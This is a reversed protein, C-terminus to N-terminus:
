GDTRGLEFLNLPYSSGEFNEALDETSAATDASEGALDGALDGALGGALDVVDTALLCHIEDQFNILKERLQARLGRCHRAAWVHQPDSSPITLLIDLAALQTALKEMKKEIKRVRKIAVLQSVYSM